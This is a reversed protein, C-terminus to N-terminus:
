SDDSADDVADCCVGTVWLIRDREMHTQSILTRVVGGLAASHV